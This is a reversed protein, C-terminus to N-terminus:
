AAADQMAQELARRAVVQALHLRYDAPVHPDDIPTAEDGAHRAAAAAADPTAPEGALAAELARARVPRDGIGLLALRADAV